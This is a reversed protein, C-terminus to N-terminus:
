QPSGTICHSVFVSDVSELSEADAAAEQEFEFRVSYIFFCFLLNLLEGADVNNFLLLVILSQVPSFNMEFERIVAFFIDCM